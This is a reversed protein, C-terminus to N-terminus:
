PTSVSKHAGAAGPAPAWTWLFAAPDAVLRVAGPTTDRCGCMPCGGGDDDSDRGGATAGGLGGGAGGQCGAAAEGAATAAAAAALQAALATRLAPFGCCPCAGCDALAMRAGTAACFPLTAGCGGGSGGGGGGSRVGEDAEHDGRGGGGDAAWGGRCVLESVPGPVGCFPCPSAADAAEDVGPRRVADEVARASAADALQAVRGPSTMLACAMRHASRRMGARTCQVVAAAQLAAEHRHAFFGGGSAGADTAVRALLRAAAGPAGGLRDLRRALRLSHLRLLAAHLGPGVAAARGAGGVAGGAVAAGGGDGGAHRMITQYADLAAAHALSLRGARALAAAAAAGARGAAAWDGAACHARVLWAHAGRRAGRPQPAGGALDTVRGRSVTTDAAAVTTTATTTTTTTTALLASPCGGAGAPEKAAETPAAADAAAADAEQEVLRGFFSVLRQALPLLVGRPAGSSGGGGPEPQAECEPRRRTRASHVLAVAREFDDETASALFLEM